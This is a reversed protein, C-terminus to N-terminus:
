ASREAAAHGPVHTRESANERRNWMALGAGAAAFIAAISVGKVFAARPAPHQAGLIRWQQRLHAAHDMMARFQAARQASLKAKQEANQAILRAKQEANQASIKAKQAIIKAKQEARHANFQMALKFLTVMRDRKNAEIAALIESPTTPSSLASSKVLIARGFSPRVVLDYASDKDESSLIRNMIASKVVDMKNGDSDVLNQRITTTETLTDRWPPLLSNFSPM